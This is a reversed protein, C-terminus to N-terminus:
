TTFLIAKGGTGGNDTGVIALAGSVGVGSGYLSNTTSTPESLAASPTDPWHSAGHVFLFASGYDDSNAGSLPAGAVISEGSIAVVDGFSEVNQGTGLLTAVPTGSWGSSGDSYVYAVGTGGNTDPAGVVASTGSVAVSWGFGDSPDSGSPDNFSVTPTTPWSSERVYVYAAGYTNGPSAGVIATAGSINVSTGFYRNGAAAPDSLTVSPTTPWSSSGKMYLYASGSVLSYNTDGVIVTSGSIAIADGFGEDGTDGPNPFEATPTSPWGSQGEQYLYVIGLAGDSGPASVILTKGSIAVHAGFGDNNVEGPDKLTKTASKPWASGHKTYLYVAGTDGYAYRAGVVVVSGSTAVAFGFNDDETPLPNHLTTILRGVTSVSEGPTSAAAAASVFSVMVFVAALVPAVPAKFHIMRFGKPRYRGVQVDNMDGTVLDPLTPRACDCCESRGYQSLSGCPGIV